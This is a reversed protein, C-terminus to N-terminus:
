LPREPSMLSAIRGAADIVLPALKPLEERPMRVTPVQVAITAQARGTHDLIPASICRVGIQAEQEDLSYGRDRIAALERDLAERSTITHETHRELRGLRQGAAPGDPHFALLAKGMSSCHLGVRTGVPQEFRLPHKTDIRLTVVGADGDLLGLNVSEGTRRAVDELVPVVADLGVARQAVQGLLVASRGLYYHDTRPNQDVYGATMLARVIRHATSPSLGLRRAIETIGLEPEGSTVFCDLVALAREIAQSGTPVGTRDGARATSHQPEM